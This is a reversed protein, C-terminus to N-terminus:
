WLIAVTVTLYIVCSISAVTMLLYGLYELQGGHTIRALGRPAVGM